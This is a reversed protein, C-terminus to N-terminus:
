SCMVIVVVNASSNKFRQSIRSRLSLFAQLLEGHHDYCAVPDLEKITNDKSRFLFNNIWFVPTHACNQQFFTWWQNANTFTEHSHTMIQLTIADKKAPLILCSTSADSITAPHTNRWRHISRLYKQTSRSMIPKRKIDKAALPFCSLISWIQNIM